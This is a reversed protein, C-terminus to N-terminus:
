AVSRREDNRTLTEYSVNVIYNRLDHGGYRCAALVGQLSRPDGNQIRCLAARSIKMAKAAEASSHLKFYRAMKVACAFQIADFSVRRGPPTAAGDIPDVGLHACLKIHYEARTPQGPAGKAARRVQAAPIGLERALKGLAFSDYSALADILIAAPITFLEGTELLTVRQGDTVGEYHKKWASRLALSQAETLNIPTTLSGAVGTEVSAAKAARRYVFTPVISASIGIFRLLGRRNM